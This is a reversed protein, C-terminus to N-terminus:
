EASIVKANAKVADAWFEVTLPVTFDLASPRGRIPTFTM